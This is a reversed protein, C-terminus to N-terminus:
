LIEKYLRRTKNRRSRVGLNRELDIAKRANRVAEDRDGIEATIEALAHLTVVQGYNDEVAAVIDGARLATRRAKELLGLELYVKCLLDLSNAEGRLDGIRRRLRLSRTAGKRATGQAGQWHAVLALANLATAEGSRDGISRSIQLSREADVRAREYDKKRRFSRSLSNLAEAEGHRDELEQHIDLGELGARIAGDHDGLRRLITSLYVLAEAEGHRDCIARRIRLAREVYDLAEPYRGLWMHLHGIFALAEGEGHRDGIVGRKELSERAYRLSLSSRGWASYVRAIIDLAEAEGRVDGIAQRIDLAAAACEFARQYESLGQFGRATTDLTTAEGHRDGIERRIALATRATALAERYESLHLHIRATNDLAAAEGYRDRVQRSLRRAQEAEAFAERARGLCRYVVALHHRMFFQSPLHGRREAAALGLRHVAINEHSYRRLEFFDYVADALEWTLEDWGLRSTQGVVEILNLHEATFWDLHRAREAPDAGTPPGALEQGITRRYRDLFRGAQQARTLYWTALRELASERVVREDEEEARGRAYERLLDHLQYRDSAVAQVLNADELRGLVRAAAGPTVALLAGTAQPTFTPGEILGLLRFAARLGPDLGRYSLDFAAGVAGDMDRGLTLNSLRDGRDLTRVAEAVSQQPRTALNAAAVSLALPLGGCMHVLRRAAEPEADTREPGAVTRILELAEGAPLPHLPVTRAHDHAVLGALEDRATVVVVCSPSGPMLPHVQQFSAADDLVILIQKRALQSRYLTTLEGEDAPIRSAPVNLARLARSLAERSTLAARDSHGRLDIFIHGDTFRDAILHAWHVALATKGVGPMGTIAIILPSRSRRNEDVLGGLRALSDSRGSFGHIDLPLERPPALPPDGGMYVVKDRGVADGGFRAHEAFSAM